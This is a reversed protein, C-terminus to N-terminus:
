LENYSNKNGGLNWTKCDDFINQQEGDSFKKWEGMNWYKKAREKRKLVFNIAQSVVMM